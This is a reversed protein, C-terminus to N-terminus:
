QWMCWIYIPLDELFGAWKQLDVCSFRIDKYNDKGELLSPCGLGVLAMIEWDVVKVMRPTIPQTGPLDSFEVQDHGKRTAWRHGSLGRLLSQSFFRKAINHTNLCTGDGTRTSKHAVLHTDGGWHTFWSHTRESRWQLWIEGGVM